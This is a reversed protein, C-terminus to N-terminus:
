AGLKELLESLTGAADITMNVYGDPKEEADAFSKEAGALLIEKVGAERLATVAAEGSAAYEQDTGCIVVIPSAQAAATFEETGPEVQGPNLAQIGGTALLNTTFGTRVNHKALPGLPILGIQPREGKEALFEDSRDRLREFEAAWRRIGPTADRKEPPLPTEALNPFENIGTVKKRRHAVDVRTLEAQKDLAAQVTETSSSFGGEGEISTFIEWANDAIQATLSEVYFSGGAPDIVHGLHSEELLLLNTNRAIRHTFNRSANPMGGPVAADFPLVEIDQAGGVGGAFAAVTVRLMNVWPDRQSFMVPATTAHVVASGAEPVGIVEAVRAWLSRLARLKAIQAFQEDTVAVRFAIQGLAEEASLGADVLARLYEVGAAIGYGIEQIDSAGQNSLPVTDVLIARVTGPRKAAAVALEVAEDLSITESGDYVATLPAAGLDINVGEAVEKGAEDIMQYLADAAASVTAGANLRIPALDLLVGDLTKELDTGDIILHTTGVRLAHLIDKNATEGEFSEAVGWGERAHATKDGRLYPFHGPAAAEALEDARNYLPKIDVDNYTAKVLKKWVDLPVDAVDKKQVRAFVKAVAKHWANEMESYNEPLDANPTGSQTDTM